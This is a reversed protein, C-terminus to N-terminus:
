EIQVIMEWGATRPPIPRTRRHLVRFTIGDVVATDTTTLAQRARDLIGGKLHRRSSVAANVIWFRPRHARLYEGLDGTGLADLMRADTLADLSYLAVDDRLGYRAQVEYALVADGPRAIADVLDTAERETIEDLTLGRARQVVVARALGAWPLVGLFVVAAATTIAARRGLALADLGHAVAVAVIPAIPLLYRAVDDAVPVVVALLTLHLVVASVGFMALWRREPDRRLRDFGIAAVLLVASTGLLHLALAKSVAIPGVYAAHERMAVGRAHGALSWVGLVTRSTGFDIAAPIASVLVGLGLARWRHRPMATALVFAQLPVFLAMEPRLLPLAAWVAVLGVLRRRSPDRVLRDGLLLAGCGAVVVLGSEYLLAAPVAVATAAPSIALLGSAHGGHLSRVLVVLAIWAAVAVVLALAKAGAAGLGIAHPLALVCAWLPSTSGSSFEGPNFAFFDGRAINRAFALYITPDGWYTDWLLLGTAAVAVGGLWALLGSHARPPEVDGSAARSAYM